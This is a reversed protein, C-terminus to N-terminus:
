PMMESYVVEACVTFAERIVPSLQGSPMAKEPDSRNTTFSVPVIPSYVVEPPTM